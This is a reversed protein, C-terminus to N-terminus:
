MVQMCPARKQQLGAFCSTPASGAPGAGKTVLWAQKCVSMSVRWGWFYMFGFLVRGMQGAQEAPLGGKSSRLVAGPPLQSQQGLVKVGAHPGHSPRQQGAVGHPVTPVGQPVQGQSGEQVLEDLAGGLHTIASYACRGSGTRQCAALSHLRSTHDSDPLRGEQVLEICGWPPHQLTCCAKLVAAAGRLYYFCLPHGARLQVM